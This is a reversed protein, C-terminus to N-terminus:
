RSSASSTSPPSCPSPGTAASTPTPSSAVSSPPPRPSQSIGFFSNIANASAAFPRHMGNFMFIVMDLFPVYFAMREAMENSFIFLAFVCGGTHALKVEGLAEGPHGRADDWGRLHHQPRGM